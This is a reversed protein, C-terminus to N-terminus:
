CTHISELNDTLYLPGWFITLRVQFSKILKRSKTYDNERQLSMPHRQQHNNDTYNIHYMGVEPDSINNLHGSDLRFKM